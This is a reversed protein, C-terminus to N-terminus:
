DVCVFLPYAFSVWNIISEFILEIILNSYIFCNLRVPATYVGKKKKSQPRSPERPGFGNVDKRKKTESKKSAKDKKLSKSVEAKESAKEKEPAKSKKSARSAKDKKPSKSVEAKESAKEKEPAKSKKSARSAKDKKSSKSVEAKESAKEKEPAKSKKSAKSTKVQKSAKPARWGPIRFITINGNEDLKAGGGRSGLTQCYCRRCTRKIYRDITPYSWADGKIKYGGAPDDTGCHQCVLGKKVPEPLTDATVADMLSAAISMM